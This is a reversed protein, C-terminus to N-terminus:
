LTPVALGDCVIVSDLVPVLEAVILPIVMVPAFAFSKLSLPFQEETKPAPALQWIITIKLGSAAPFREAEIEIESLAAPLGCETDKVPV